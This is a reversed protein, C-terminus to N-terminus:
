AKRLEKLQGLALEAAHERAHTDCLLKRVGEMDGAAFRSAAEALAAEALDRSQRESREAAQARDRALEAAVLDKANSSELRHELAAMRKVQEELAGIRQELEENTQSVGEGGLLTEM